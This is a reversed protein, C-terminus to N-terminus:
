VVSKRDPVVVDVTSELSNENDGAMAVFGGIPLLRISLKTEKFQKSYITKGMGISFESCYVGFSKAAILHGLEHVVVIVSLLVVFSIIYLM